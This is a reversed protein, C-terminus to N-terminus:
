YASRDLSKLTEASKALTRLEDLRLNTKCEIAAIVGEAPILRNEKAEDMYLIPTRQADYLIVDLQTSVNGFRDAVQGHAVGIADPLHRRLFSRVANEVADGKTANHLFSQRSAEINAKLQGSVLEMIDALNSMNEGYCGGPLTSGYASDGHHDVGYRGSALLPPGLAILHHLRQNGLQAPGFFDVSSAARLRARSFRAVSM